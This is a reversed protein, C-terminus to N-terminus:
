RVPVAYAREESLDILLAPEGAAPIGFALGSPLLELSVPISPLAIQTIADPKIRTLEWTRNNAVLLEGSAMVAMAVPEGIRQGSGALEQLPPGPTGADFLLVRDSLRDAVVVRTDNETWAIAAPYFDDSAYLIREAAGDCLRSLAGTRGLLACNASDSVAVVNPPLNWGVPISLRPDGVIDSVFQAIGTEINAILSRSGTSSM